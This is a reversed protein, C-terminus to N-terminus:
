SVKTGEMEIGTTVGRDGRAADTTVEGSASCTGRVSFMDGNLLKGDALSGTTASNSASVRVTEDTEGTSSIDTWTGETLITGATSFWISDAGGGM